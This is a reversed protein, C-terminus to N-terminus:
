RRLNLCLLQKGDLQYTRAPALEAFKLDGGEAFFVLHEAATLLLFSLDYHCQCFHLIKLSKFLFPLFLFIFHIVTIILIDNQMTPSLSLWLKCYALLINVFAQFHHPSHFIQTTHAYFSPFFCANLGDSIWMLQWTKNSVALFIWSEAWCVLHLCFTNYTVWFDIIFHLNVSQFSLYCILFTVNLM